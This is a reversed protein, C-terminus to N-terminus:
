LFRKLKVKMTKNGPREMATTMVGGGIPVMRQKTAGKSWLANMEQYKRLLNEADGGLTVSASPSSAIDLGLAMGHMIFPFANASFDLSVEMLPITVPINVALMAYGEPSEDAVMLNTRKIITSKKQMDNVQLVILIDILSADNFMM